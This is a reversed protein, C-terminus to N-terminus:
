SEGLLVRLYDRRGYLVRDVFVHTGHTQYFILYNGSVLFRYDSEVAAISRLPTGLQGYERLRSMEKTIRGVVARAAQPNALDQAIYTQIEELDQRIKPSLHLKNM